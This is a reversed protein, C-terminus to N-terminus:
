NFDITFNRCFLASIMKTTIVQSERVARFSNALYKETKKKIQFNENKWSPATSSTWNKRSGAATRHDSPELVLWRQHISGQSTWLWFLFNQLQRYYGKELHNMTRCKRMKLQDSVRTFQNILFQVAQEHYITMIYRTAYRNKLKQLLFNWLYTGLNRVAFIEMGGISFNAYIVGSDVSTRFM